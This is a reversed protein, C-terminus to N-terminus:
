RAMSITRVSTLFRCRLSATEKSAKKCVKLTSRGRKCCIKQFTSRLAQLNVGSCPATETREYLRVGSTIVMSILSPPTPISASNTSLIKSAKSCTSERWSPRPSPRAMLLAIMSICPPVIEARLLPSPLPAVNTISNGIWVTPEYIGAQLHPNEKGMARDCDGSFSIAHFLSCRYYHGACEKADRLEGGGFVFHNQAEPMKGVDSM